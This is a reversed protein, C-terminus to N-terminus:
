MKIQVKLCYALQETINHKKKAPGDFTWHFDAFSGWSLLWWGPIEQKDSAQQKYRTTLGHQSEETLFGSWGILISSLLM